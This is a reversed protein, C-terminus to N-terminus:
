DKAEGQFFASFHKVHRSDRYRDICEIITSVNETIRHCKKSIKLKDGVRLSREQPITYSNGLGLFKWFGSHLM